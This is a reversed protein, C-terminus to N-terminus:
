LGLERRVEESFQEIAQMIGPHELDARVMEQAKVWTEEWNISVNPDLNLQDCITKFRAKDDSDGVDTLSPDLKRAIVGGAVHAKAVATFWEWYKGPEWRGLDNIKVGAMDGVYDNLMPDFRICTRHPDYNQTGAMKFYFLHAAEHCCLIRIFGPRSMEAMMGQYVRQFKPSAREAESIGDTNITPGTSSM